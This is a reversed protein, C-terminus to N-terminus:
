VVDIGIIKMKRSYADVDMEFHSGMFVYRLNLGGSSIYLAKMTMRKENAYSRGDLGRYLKLGVNHSHAETFLAFENVKSSLKIRRFTGSIVANNYSSRTVM